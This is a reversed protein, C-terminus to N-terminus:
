KSDLYAVMREITMFNEVIIDEQPIAINSEKEIFEILRMMGVSDVIGTGLLDENDDIETVPEIALEEKIYTILKQKM